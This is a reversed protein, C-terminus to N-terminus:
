QLLQVFLRPLADNDGCSSQWAELFSSTNNNISCHRLNMNSIVVDTVNCRKAIYAGINKIDETVTSSQHLSPLTQKIYSPSVLSSNHELELSKTYLKAEKACWKNLTALYRIGYLSYSYAIAEEIWNHGDSRLYRLDSRAALHALEHSLQYAYQMYSRIDTVIIKEHDTQAYVPAPSLPDRVIRIYDSKLPPFTDNPFFFKILWNTIKKYSSIHEFNEFIIRPRPM